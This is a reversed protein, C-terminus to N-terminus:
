HKNRKPEKRQESISEESKKRKKMRVGIDILRRKYVLYPYTFPLVVAADDISYFGGEQRMEELEQEALDEPFIRECVELMAAHFLKQNNSMELFVEAYTTM